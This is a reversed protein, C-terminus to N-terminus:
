NGEVPIPALRVEHATPEAEGTATRVVVSAPRSGPSLQWTGTVQGTEGAAVTVARSSGEVTRGGDTEVPGFQVTYPTSGTNEATVVLTLVWSDETARFSAVSLRERQPTGPLLEDGVGVGGTSEQSAPETGDDGATGDRDGDGTGDDSGDGGGLLSQEVLGVFTALEVLVPIGIGFGVLLRIVTRRRHAGAAAADDSDSDAGTRPESEDTATTPKTGESV